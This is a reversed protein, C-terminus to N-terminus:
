ARITRKVAAKTHQAVTAYQVLCIIRVEPGLTTLVHHRTIPM